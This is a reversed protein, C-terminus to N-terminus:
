FGTWGTLIKKIKRPRASIIGMPWNLAYGCRGSHSIAPQGGAVAFVPSMNM